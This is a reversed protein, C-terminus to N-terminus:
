KFYKRKIRLSISTLVEYPISGIIDAIKMIDEASDFIVVKDGENVNLETVDIVCNDMSINGVIKATKNGIKFRWKGCSLLRNLGDAYGIAVIAIKMNSKATENQNYGIKEGKKIHKIQIITSQLSSINELGKLSGIGYLAIGLRVMDFHAEPFRILGASNCIHRITNKLGIRSIILNSLIEFTKIQEKTIIDLCPNDASSLHSFISIVNLNSNSLLICLTDIETEKFGLRNMGTDLKIHIPYNVIDNKHCYDIFNELLNRNYIEPQLKYEVIQEFDNITSNLIIIPKIIGKDRLTIAEDLYAVALYDVGAECLSSAIEYTGSGYGLAKVMAVTKTNPKLHSKIIKYNSVLTELDINLETSHMKEQLLSVIKEFFFQRSGKILVAKNNFKKKDIKKCFEETSSFNIHKFKKSTLINKIKSGISYVEEIDYKSLLEKVKLYIIDDSQIFDSIILIHKQDPAISSLYNLAITLSQIDNSYADNIIRCNNIGDMLQLRMEVTELKTIKSIAKKVDIGEDTKIIFAMANMINEYSGYNNFPSITKYTKGNLTFEIQEKNYKSIISGNAGWTFKNIHAYKETIYNNILENDSNFIVFQSNKLIKSKEHLIEEKNSFNEIHASNLNTFIVGNPQVIKELKEMENKQSIGVEIIAYSDTPNIMLISIPVGIQSNFSKPSRFIDKRNSIQTIWEKTITKGNSGVIAIIPMKLSERYNSALAQIANVSNEVCIFGVTHNSECIVIANEKFENEIIFSTVGCNIMDDIYDHGNRNNSRIALFLSSAKRDTNRSDFLVSDVLNDHGILEGCVINSINHLLYKM